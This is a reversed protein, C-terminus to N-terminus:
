KEALAKELLPKPFFAMHGRWRIHGKRDIIVGAPFGTVRYPSSCKSGADLGVDVFPIENKKVYVDVSETNKPDEPDCIGLFTVGKPSWAKILSRLHPLESKCNECWTAFFVLVVVEGGFSSLGSTAVGDIWKEIRLPPAPLGVLGLEYIYKRTKNSDNVPVDPFEKLTQQLAQRAVVVNDLGAQCVAVRVLSKPRGTYAPFDRYASAYALLAKVLDGLVLYCSGTLYVGEPTIEDKPYKALLEGFIRIAEQHCADPQVGTIKGDAADQAKRFHTEGTKFLAEAQARPSPDLAAAEKLRAFAEDYKRVKRLQVADEIKLEAPTKPEVKKPEEGVGAKKEAPRAEPADDDDACLPMSSSICALLVGALLASSWHTRQLSM